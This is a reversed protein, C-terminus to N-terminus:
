ANVCGNSSPRCCASMPLISESIPARPSSSASVAPSTSTHIPWASM